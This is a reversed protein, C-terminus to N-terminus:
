FKGSRLGCICYWSYKSASHGESEKKRGYDVSLTDACLCLTIDLSPLSYSDFTIYIFLTLQHALTFSCFVIVMCTSIKVPGPLGSVDAYQVDFTFTSSRYFTLAKVSPIPNGRPYIITSQQNDVVGNETDSAYSKWLLAISFPFSEIVQLCSILLTMYIGRM